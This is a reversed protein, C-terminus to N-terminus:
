TRSRSWGWPAARRVPARLRVRVPSVQRRDSRDRHGTKPRATRSERRERLRHARRAVQAIAEAAQAAQRAAIRARVEPRRLPPITAPPQKRPPLAALLRPRLLTVESSRAARVSRRNTDHLKQIGSVKRVYQRSPPRSRRPRPWPNSAGCSPSTEACAVPYHGDHRVALLRVGRPAGAPTRRGGRGGDGDHGSGSRTTATSLALLRDLAAREPLGTLDGLASVAAAGCANGMGLAAILDRGELRAAIFGACFADGAGM